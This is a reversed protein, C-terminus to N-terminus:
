SSKLDRTTRETVSPLSVLDGSKKKIAEIISGPPALANQQQAADLQQQKLRRRLQQAHLVDAFGKGFFFFAPILLLLWLLSSVPSSTASLIVGVMLFGDGIFVSAIGNGVLEDPDSANRQLPEAARRQLRNSRKLAPVSAELEAGCGRCFNLAKLNETGCKSCFM